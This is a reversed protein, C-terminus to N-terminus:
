MNQWAQHGQVEVYLAYLSQSAAMFLRNRKHGGFCLNACVEPLQIRGILDGDPAIIHVGDYGPGAWGASTWVNGEVDVRLGDAFGPGMDHFLRDESLRNGDIVDFVRIHHPHDPNHSAGTDAVYLRKFDPAFALGNPRELASTMRTIARTQPNLRYVSPALHEPEPWGEYFGVSGYGPDTFWIWGDPHLVADNPGNLPKGDVRDCLVTVSGDYETRTLQRRECTILRGQLDRTNGNANNAPVRFESVVGTEESWRLMRDNPIDSWLLYRGDGFWVPGEAWRCGTYLQEIAAANVRYRAFRPDLVEVRADPYRVPAAATLARAAPAILVGAAAVAGRSLVSRRNM